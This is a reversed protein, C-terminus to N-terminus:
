ALCRFQLVLRMQERKQRQLGFNIIFIKEIQAISECIDQSWTYILSTVVQLCFSVQDLCIVSAFIAVGAIELKVTKMWIKLFQQICTDSASWFPPLM